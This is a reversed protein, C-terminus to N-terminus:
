NEDSKGVEYNEGVGEELESILSKRNFIDDARSLVVSINECWDYFETFNDYPIPNHRPDGAYISIDRSAINRSNIPHFFLESNLTQRIPFPWPVPSSAGL